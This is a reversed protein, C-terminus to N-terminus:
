TREVAISSRSRSAPASKQFTAMRRGDHSVDGGRDGACAQPGHRWAGPDGLTDRSRGGEGSAHLLVIASSDPTWRPHDHDVADRTIQHVLGGGLRRLWVQRRGDVPAVFAVDKGDPSVAPMEEIGVLYTIKFARACGRGGTQAVRGSEGLRRTRRHRIVRRRRGSALPLLRRTPTRPAATRAGGAARARRRARRPRRRYRPPAPARGQRSMARVCAYQESVPTSLGYQNNEIVFLVPLKWVAALNVAEHFDGESTGGDGSFTAAM